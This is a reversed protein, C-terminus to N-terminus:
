NFFWQIRWCMRWGDWTDNIESSTWSRISDNGKEVTEDYFPNFFKMKFKGGHPNAVTIDFEEFTAENNIELKQIEKGSHHHTTTDAAEFEVSATFYNTDWFM